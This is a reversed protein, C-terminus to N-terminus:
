YALTLKIKGLDFAKHCRACLRKWDNLDRKYNRSINAWHFMRSNKSVMNCNECKCPKGLKNEVWIHLGRYGVKDGKWTPNKEESVDRGYWHHNKGSRFGKLGKNWPICGKKSESIKKKTEETHM